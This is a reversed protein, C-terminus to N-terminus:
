PRARGDPGRSRVEPLLCHRRAALLACARPQSSGPGGALSDASGPERLCLELVRELLQGLTRLGLLLGRALALGFLRCVAVELVLRLRTLRACGQQDVLLVRSPATGAGRGQVRMSCPTARGFLLGAWSRYKSVARM